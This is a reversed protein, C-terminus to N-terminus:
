VAELVSFEEWHQKCFVRGSSTRIAAKQPCREVTPPIPRGSFTRQNYPNDNPILILAECAMM